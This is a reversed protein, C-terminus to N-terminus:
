YITMNLGFVQAALYTNFDQRYFVGPLAILTDNYRASAFSFGVTSAAFLTYMDADVGAAQFLVSSAAWSCFGNIEQWVYPIGELTKEASPQFGNDAQDINHTTASQTPILLIFLVIILIAQNRMYVDEVDKCRQIMMLSNTIGFFSPSTAAVDGQV